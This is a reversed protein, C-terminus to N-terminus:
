KNHPEETPAELEGAGPGQSKDKEETGESKQSLSEGNVPGSLDSPSLSLSLTKSGRIWGSGRPSLIWLWLNERGPCAPLGWSQASGWLQLFLGLVELGWGLPVTLTCKGQWSRQSPEQLVM